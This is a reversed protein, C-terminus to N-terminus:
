GTVQDRFRMRAEYEEIKKKFPTCGNLQAYDVCSGCVDQGCMRCHGGADVSAAPDTSRFAKVANCHGCTYTDAEHKFGPGTLTAYGAKRVLRM